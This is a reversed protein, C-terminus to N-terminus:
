EPAKRVFYWAGLTGMVTIMAAIISFTPASIYLGVALVSLFGFAGMIGSRTISYSCVGAILGIILTIITTFSGRSIGVYKDSVIDLNNTIGSAIATSEIMAGFNTGTASSISDTLVPSSGVQFADPVIKQLQPHIQGAYGLSNPTLYGNRNIFFGTPTQLERELFLFPSATNSKLFKVLEERQDSRDAAASSSFDPKICQATAANFYTTSPEICIDINSDLFNISHGADIYIGAVNHGIRTLPHQQTLSGTPNNLSDLGAGNEYFTIFAHGSKLSEIKTPAAPTEDCGSDDDLYLCWADSVGSATSWPLELRVVVLLDGESGTTITEDTLINRFVKAQHIEVDPPTPLAQASTINFAFFGSAIGAVILALLYRM